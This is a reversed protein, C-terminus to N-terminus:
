GGLVQAVDGDFQDTSTVVDRDHAASPGVVVRAFSIGRALRPAADFDPSDRTPRKALLRSPSAGRVESAIQRATDNM